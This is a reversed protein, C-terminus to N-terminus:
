KKWFMFGRRKSKDKQKGPSEKSEINAPVTAPKRSWAREKAEEDKRGMAIAHEHFMKSSALSARRVKEWDITAAPNNERQRNIEELVTRIHKWRKLNKDSDVELVHELGRLQTCSFIFHLHLAARSFCFPLLHSVSVVYMYM